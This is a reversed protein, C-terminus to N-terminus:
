PLDLLRIRKTTLGDASTVLLYNGSISVSVAGGASLTATGGDPADLIYRIAFRIRAARLTAPLGDVRVWDWDLFRLPRSCEFDISASEMTIGRIQKTLWGLRGMFNTGRGSVNRHLGKSVNITGPKPVQLFFALTESAYGGQDDGAELSDGGSCCLVVRFSDASLNLLDFADLETDAVVLRGGAAAIIPELYDQVAQLLTDITM